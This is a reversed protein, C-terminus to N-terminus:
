RDSSRATKIEPFEVTVSLGDPEFNWNIQGDLQKEVITKLLRTGYGIGGPEDTPRQFREQWIVRQQGDVIQLTILLQGDSHSLAGYKAANTILEHLMLAISTVSSHNIRVDDGRIIIQDARQTRYPELLQKAIGLLSGESSADSRLILGHAKHLADLRARLPTALASLRPEDRVSLSILGNVLAFLNKIRHDLERTVLARQAELQKAAHIDTSTGYWRRISGDPDHMPMAIVRLWRYTGDHYRYRYDIDYTQGTTLCEQWTEKVRALDGPHVLDKWLESNNKEPSIGTFESWRHNFYDHNGESDASWVIQAVAEILTDFRLNSQALAAVVETYDTVDTIIGAYQVIQQQNNKIPRGFATYWRQRKDYTSVRFSARYDTGNAVASGVASQMQGLDEPHINSFLADISIGNRAKVESIGHPRALSGDLIVRRSKIDFDWTGVIGGADLAMEIRQHSTNLAKQTRIHRTTESATLLTGHIVGEDDVIPAMSIDFWCTQWVGDRCLQLPENTFRLSQSQYCTDIATRFFQAVSPLVDDIPRGMANDYADGFIEKAAKNCAVAGGSGILVAMPAASQLVTRIAFRLEPAWTSTAGAATNTWDVAIIAPRMHAAESGNIFGSFLREAM